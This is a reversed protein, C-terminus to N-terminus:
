SVFRGLVENQKSYLKRIVFAVIYESITLVNYLFGYVGQSGQMNKIMLINEEEWATSVMCSFDIGCSFVEIISFIYIWM